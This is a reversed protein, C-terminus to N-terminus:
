SECFLCYLLLVPLLLIFTFFTNILLFVSFSCFIPLLLFMYKLSQTGLFCVSQFSSHRVSQFSSHRSYVTNYHTWNGNVWWRDSSPLNSLSLVRVFGELKLTDFNDRREAWILKRRNESCIGKMLTVFVSLCLSISVCVTITHRKIEALINLKKITIEERNRTMTIRDYIKGIYSNTRKLVAASCSRVFNGWRFIAHSSYISFKLGHWQAGQMFLPTGM